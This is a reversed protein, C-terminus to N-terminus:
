NSVFFGVAVVEGLGLRGVMADLDFRMRRLIFVSRGKLEKPVSSGPKPAYLLFLYRHPSGGPPPGAPLWPVVPPDDSVLEKEGQAAKVRFGTQIWHVIPSLVDWSTYPGDIDLSIVTYEDGEPLGTPFSLTPAHQTDKKAIKTGPAVQNSNIRLSLVPYTGNELGQLLSELKSTDPM